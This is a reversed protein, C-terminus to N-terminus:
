TGAAVDGLYSSELLHSTGVLSIFTAPRAAVLGVPELLDPKAGMPIDLPLAGLVMLETSAVEAVVLDYTAIVTLLRYDVFVEGHVDHGVRIHIDLDHYSLTQARRVHVNAGIQLFTVM